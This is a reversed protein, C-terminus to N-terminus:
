QILFKVRKIYSMIMIIVIYIANLVFFLWNNNCLVWLSLILSLEEIQMSLSSVSIPVTYLLSLSLRLQISLSYKMCLSNMRFPDTRLCRTVPTTQESACFPACSRGANCLTTMVCLFMLIFFIFSWCSIFFSLILWCECVTMIFICFLAVFIIFVHSFWLENDYWNTEDNIM